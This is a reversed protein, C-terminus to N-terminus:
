RRAYMIQTQLSALQTQLRLEVARMENMAQLHYQRAIDDARKSISTYCARCAYISNFDKAESALPESGEPTRLMPSIESSLPFFHIGLGSTIRGCFWCKSTKAYDNILKLNAEGSDGMQKRYGYAIQQYEAAKRPDDWVTGSSLSEYGIALLLIGERIGTRTTDNLFIESLKLNESGIESQYKQALKILKQGKDILVGSAGNMNLTRIGEISLECQKKMMETNITTLGFEFEEASTGNLANYLSVYASIDGLRGRMDIMSVIVASMHDPGGDKEISKTLIRRAKDFEGQKILDIGQDYLADANKFLSFVM